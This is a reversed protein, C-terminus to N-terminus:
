FLVCDFPRPSPAKVPDVADFCTPYAPFALMIFELRARLSGWGTRSRGTWGYVSAYRRDIWSVSGWGYASAYRTEIWSPFYDVRGGVTIPRM